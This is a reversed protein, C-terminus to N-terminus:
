NGSYTVEGNLISADVKAAQLDAPNSSFIDDSLIVLDAASGIQIRGKVKEEGSAYASGTTYAHLAADLALKEGPMWGSPHKGDLTKRTVAASLIQIPNIPEVPWDSGFALTAGANLLSRFAYSRQAREMGIRNELWCGDDIAHYPQVSAVVGISAFRRFDSYLLHQAHEIRLRRDRPGNQQVVREFLDLVLSNARDGIAHIALQLGAEDAQQLAQYMAPLDSMDESYMGYTDPADTYPEAFCATRSGLSGDAFGKLAGIRLKSSGFGASIGIRALDHWAMLPMHFSVKVQLNNRRQLEQYAKLLAAHEMHSGGVIGMDHVSTVGYSAAYRQAADIAGVLEPLTPSPIVREILQKAADKFIGTPSGDAYREIIGGSVDPTEKSVGAIDMAVSNALATHADIRRVFVPNHPTVGDIMGANPLKGSPWREPDWEGHLIWRGVPQTYAFAALVDCFERENRCERLRVGTLGFGGTSVHVHSDNFGPVVCRGRVDIVNTRKTRIPLIDSSRGVFAIKSGSIAIADAEPQEANGTWIRGGTLILDV